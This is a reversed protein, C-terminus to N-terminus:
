NALNLCIQAIKEPSHRILSRKLRDGKEKIVIKESLLDASVVKFPWKGTLDNFVPEAYTRKYRKLIDQSIPANNILVYDLVNVPLYKDLQRIFTAATFKYTQGYETMLNLIYIKKGRNKIIAETVGNIVLNAIVTTYFGGPGIIIVDATEIEKKVQSYVFAQPKTYFKTIRPFDKQKPDDINHEGTIIQGNNYHAVLDTKELTVPLVKGKIRLLESAMEIAKTQSDVINSLAVLFLNGFTMGSLGRGKAFRYEFLRRLILSDKASVDALALLSKRIDSSPLLGWEDREKRASGGSDAMSVIATVHDTFKKLGNLVSFTGTGGGIVVFSKHQKKM